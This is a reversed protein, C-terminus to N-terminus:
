GSQVIIVDSSIGNTAVYGEDIKIDTRGQPVDGMEFVGTRLHGSRSRTYLNM